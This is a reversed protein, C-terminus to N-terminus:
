LECLLRSVKIATLCYKQTPHFQKSQAMALRQRSINDEKIHARCALHEKAVM